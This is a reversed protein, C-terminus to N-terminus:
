TFGKIIVCELCVFLFFTTNFHYESLISRDYSFGKDLPWLSVGSMASHAENNSYGNQIYGPVYASPCAEGQIRYASREVGSVLNNQMIVSIADRSMIAGDYNINYQSISSSQATGSWYVTTVLNNRVISNKGTVVIGTRYTNYIVNNTIPVGNTNLMGIAANFGGDFSCGDISTPRQSNWDNLNSMYICSQQDSNTTDDFQAFGIFQTNSLRAYGKYYTDVLQNTDSYRILTSYQTIFIRLGSLNPSPSQNIIRINHTLLGVAAAINVTQDNPFTQQLVIHTYALPIMTHIITGNDISAIRHRETHSIDRDTTTIVFEDGIMWSVRESLVILSEGSAATTAIRTWSIGRLSGHLDLGGLVAIVRSGILPFNYPLAITISHHDQLIIDISDNFPADPLGAILRGGNIFISGVYMTHNRGQSATPIDYGPQPATSPTPNTPCPNCPPPPCWNIYFSCTQDAVETRTNKVNYTQNLSFRLWSGWSLPCEIANGFNSVSTCISSTNTMGDPAMIVSNPQGGLSGDNDQYVGDYTWRFNGRIAVNYFSM